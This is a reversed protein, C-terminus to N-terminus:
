PRRFGAPQEWEARYHPCFVDGTAPAERCFMNCCQLQKREPALQQAAETLVDECPGCLANVTSGTPLECRWCTTIGSPLNPPLDDPWRALHNLCDPCTIGAATFAYGGPPQEGLGCLPVSSVVDGDLNYIPNPACITNATITIDM